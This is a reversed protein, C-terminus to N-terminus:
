EEADRGNGQLTFIYIPNRAKMLQYPGAKHSQALQLSVVESESLSPELAKMVRTWEAISELSIASAVIRAGPNKRFILQVIEMIKGSSGGVFVRDPAPLEECAEPATGAIIQLNDVWMKEKNEHLLALADKNKEIAYVPSERLNLAMEISVSGTGAGIDWCRSDEFLQLKSLCVSRVESKTMPVLAGEDLRRLFVEDPLGQTVLRRPTPNEILLVSLPDCDYDLFDPPAGRTIKEEPYSLREGLYLHLNNLRASVLEGALKRMADCGGLLLFLSQNERVDSIVSREHGHLSIVRIDEYSKGLRSCFFSLSSIGPFLRVDWGDLLPLLKRSGSYFGSDGSMLVAVHRASKQDRIIAAIREPAIAEYQKKNSKEAIALMRGAGILCDARRLAERAAVSLWEPNGPGIGIIDVSPKLQCGFRSCLLDLMEDMELGEPKQPRGIVLLQAGARHAARVKAQFSAEEGGDKSVLWDLKLDQLLALNMSESFPGQMAIIHSAELGAERCAELSSPLPLVRAYVRNKFDKLKSFVALDKSGTTLLIRGDASSLYDAAAAADPLLVADAPIDSAKRSLRLYPTMNQACADSLHKSISAAYPHTADIVLDFEEDQLLKRIEEPPLRRASIRLREADPLLEKGYETTVCAMLQVPQGSLFELLSRGDATGAFVCIKYM